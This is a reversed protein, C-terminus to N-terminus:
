QPGGGQEQDHYRHVQETLLVLSITWVRERQVLTSSILEGLDQPTHETM